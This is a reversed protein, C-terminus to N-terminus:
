TLREALRRKGTDAAFSCLYREVAAAVRAYVPNEPAVFRLVLEDDLYAGTVELACPRVGAPDRQWHWWDHVHWGDASLTSPTRLDGLFNFSVVPEPPRHSTLIGYGAGLDPIAALTDHVRGEVDQAAQSRDVDFRQPFRATFWGVTAAVPEKGWSEVRGHSELSLTVEDSDGCAALASLTATLAPVDGRLGRAAALRRVAATEARDLRIETRRADAYRGPDGFLDAIAGGATTQRAWYGAQGSLRGSAALREVTRAWALFGPPVDDPTGHGTAPAHYGAVLEGVLTRWSITDVVLHHAVLAIRDPASGAEDRAVVARIVPGSRIDLSEDASRVVERWGDPGAASDWTGVDIVAEAGADEFQHWEGGHQGFRLRLAQHREVIRAFAARLRGPDHDPPLTLVVGQNFLNRDTLDQATFWRQVPTLAVPTAPEPVPSSAPVTTPRVVAKDLSERLSLTGLVAASTLEVGIRRCEAVIRMASISDGGLALFDDEASVEEVGLVTGWIRQVSRLIGAGDTEAVAPAPRASGGTGLDSLLARKDVKGNRTLPLEAVVEFRQPVLHAPVQSALAARLGDAAVSASGAPVVFAILSVRPEDAKLVVAKAVGPLGAIRAAIEGPEVRHGRIKVQDDSRGLIVLNGHHDLRALDGTRYVRGRGDAVAPFREATLEPLGLYGRALGIGSILLEGVGDGHEGATSPDLHIDTGAIPRGVPMPDQAAYDALRFTAGETLRMACRGIVGESPGYHNYVTSTPFLRRIVALQGARLIEGGILFVRPGPLGGRDGLTSALVDVHSPTLRVLDLGPDQILAPLDDIPLHPDALVLRGGTVLPLFLSSFSFDFGISSHLLCSVPAGAALEAGLWGLYNALGVHEVMVGKPTGTSGSTHIVYVLDRLSVDVQPDDEPMDACDTDVTVARLGALVDRLHDQALVHGVGSGDVLERVRTAPQSPDLPVFAGGAKGVGLVAAVLDVSREAFVGVLSDAGVGLARLRHAIRNARRNVEAYSHEIGGSVVAVADPTARVRQAFLDPVCSAVPSPAGVGPTPDYSVHTMGTMSVSM